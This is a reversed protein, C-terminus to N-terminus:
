EAGDPEGVNAPEPHVVLKTPHHDVPQRHGPRGEEVESPELREVRLRKTVQRPGGVAAKRKVVCTGEAEAFRDM